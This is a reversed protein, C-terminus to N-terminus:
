RATKSQEYFRRVFCATNVFDEAVIQADELDVCRRLIDATAKIDRKKPDASEPDYVIHKNGFKVTVRYKGNETATVIMGKFKIIEATKAVFGQGNVMPIITCHYLVGPIIDKELLYDVLVIRKKTESERCGRWSNNSNKTVFGRLQSSQEDTSRFFKINTKIKSAM